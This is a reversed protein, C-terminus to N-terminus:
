VWARVSVVRGSRDFIESSLSRPLRTGSVAVTEGDALEVEVHPAGEAPGVAIPVQCLTSGVAGAPLPLRRERGAVDIVSWTAPAPLQEDSRLFRRDFVIEGADVRVGLEAWRALIEEKVAGTMGPQRAGGGAPTHSYPDTPIAGFEAATTTFGLGRRIQEYGALLRDTVSCMGATSRVNVTSGCGSARTSIPPRLYRGRSSDRPWSIRM